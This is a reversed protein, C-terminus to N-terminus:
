RTEVSVVLPLHDSLRGYRAFGPEDPSPCEAAVVALDASVLVYDLRQTPPGDRPGPEWNTHGPEDAGAGEPWADRFGAAAFATLTRSGPLDNLDGAVLAPGRGALAAVLGAQRVREEDSVHAGLHTDVVVLGLDGPDVRLAIRRRWSWFTLFGALCTTRVGAVPRPTLVAAGEAAVVVPWHKFRWEVSWGLRAGLALAQRRQVEQLVVVDPFRDAIEAAVADLDPEERGQLNWTLVRM